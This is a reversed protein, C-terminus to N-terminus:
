EFACEVCYFTLAAGKALLIFGGLLGLIEFMWETVRRIRRRSSSGDVVNPLGGSTGHSAGRVMSVDHRADIMGNDRDVTQERELLLSGQTEGIAVRAGYEARAGDGDRDRGHPRHGPGVRDLTRSNRSTAFCREPM